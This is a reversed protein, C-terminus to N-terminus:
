NFSITLTYTHPGEELSALLSSIIIGYGYEYFRGSVSITCPTIGVAHAFRQSEQDTVTSFAGRQMVGILEGNTDTKTVSVSLNGNGNVVLGVIMIDPFFDSTVTYTKTQGKLMIAFASNIPGISVNEVELSFGEGPLVLLTLLLIPLIYMVLKTNVTQKM